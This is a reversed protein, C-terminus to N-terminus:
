MRTECEIVEAVDLALQAARKRVAREDTGDVSFSLEGTDGHLALEERLANSLSIDYRVCEHQSYASSVDVDLRELVRAIACARSPNKWGTMLISDVDVQRVHASARMKALVRAGWRDGPSRMDWLFMRSRTAPEYQEALARPVGRALAENVTYERSYTTRTQMRATLRLGRPVSAHMARQIAGASRRKRRREDVMAHVSGAELSRWLAVDTGFARWHARSTRAVRLADRVCLHALALALARTAPTTM